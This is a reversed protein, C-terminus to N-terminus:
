IANLFERFEEEIAAVVRSAASFATQIRILSVLEEEINVATENLLTEQLLDRFAGEDDSRTKAVNVEESQRNIMKQAYDIISSSSVIGTNVNADPGLNETRFTVYEGSGATTESQYSHTEIPLADGFLSEVIGVGGSTTFDSGIIRMDGGYVPADYNEGPRIMLFGNGGGDTLDNSVALGPVGEDGATGDYHLKDYLDTETDTPGITIRQVPDNGVQIDIYPDEAEFTGSSLGLFNLGDDGAGNTINGDMEINGRSEIVLQGASNLSASANWATDIAPASSLRGNIQNMLQEGANNGTFGSTASLNITITKPTANVPPGEMDPDTFTIEFQDNPDDLLGGAASIVEDFDAFDTLNLSTKVENRSYIGIVDQLTNGSTRLDVNGTATQVETDSFAFEVIRRLVENSGDQVELATDATGSQILTNDDLIAQNIRIEASFGVYEVATPPETSPDPAANSPIQGASDTFLRLGQMDFRRALQYATEDLMAQQEPLIEDRLEILGGLKGGISSTTIDTADADKQPDGVYIGSLGSPYAAEPGARIPSFTVTEANESVLERGNNTQVVMVGDGRTFFDIEIDESLKEIAVDRRDQLTAISRGSITNVKIDQNIEAIEQLRANISDITQTMDDQTDNRMQSILNEFNNIKDVIVEAQNLASKMLFTDSPTDSLAAFDDRLESLEASISVEQEPAGHFQQIKELYQVKVDASSVTSVQSWFDRALNMNVSRVLQGPRVGIVQERSSQAEQPLIKRTYGPTSANAINTSIVDMQRQAINLGSLAIDLGNLGM